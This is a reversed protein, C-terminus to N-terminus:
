KALDKELLVKYEQYEEKTIEGVALRRRLIDFPSDKKKRQGPIDYPLAFVWVILIIWLIWWYFHMGILQYNYYYEM